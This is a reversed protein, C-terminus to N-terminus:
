APADNQRALSSRQALFDIALALLGGVATNILRLSAASRESFGGFGFLFVTYCTLVLSFFAYNVAQVAFCLYATGVVLAFYVAHHFPPFLHALLVTLTAGLLTGVTRAVGRSLTNAWKPKLVLLATMPAWYGNRLHAYRYLATTLGLTVTLKITYATGGATWHLEKRMSTWLQLARTRIQRALPLSPPHATATHRRFFRSASFLVMQLAGGALVMATRGVAYHVGNSFYSSIVVYVGCQQGIWSATPDLGALLGYNLAAVGCLLLVLPTWAAGLSGILTASAIGVTLFAMSLLSSSLAEHFVAFGVTFAAGAAISGASSHGTFEGLLLAVAVSATAEIAPYPTSKKWPFLATDESIDRLQLM